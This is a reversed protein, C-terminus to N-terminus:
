LTLQIQMFGEDDLGLDIPRYEALEDIYNRANPGTKLIATRSGMPAFSFPKVTEALLTPQLNGALYDRLADQIRLSPLSILRPNKAVPFDGGGNARYNNLVVVFIQDETIPTGNFSADLIRSNAADVLSGDCHFRAHKSLDIQWTAGYLIDFNHGTWHPNTLLHPGDKSLQSFLGASMELWDLIQTGNALVARLENPFVHIDAVHRMSIEGAPVDTYYRPGARGGFKAPAVASLVPIDAFQTNALFPKVAAAQAEALLSLSRDSGCYSFYSHLPKTIRGVPEASQARTEVHGAAFFASIEADEAVTSADVDSQISRLEAQSNEVRWKKNQDRKLSLDIIGLHSGAWGPMVVPKDHVLGRAHDVHKLGAHGPGPLTLHTHGAIIADIADIEALPIAANEQGNEFTDAGLGTHALAVVLDCGLQKLNAATHHASTVIDEVEAKGKLKHAEWQLTQPPLVSLVGICIPENNGNLVVSRPLIAYPHWPSKLAKYRMNSCLIPYTAKEAIQELFAVGFGFDHNGLGVADYGLAAFAQPLPHAHQITQAAWQGYPTGQLSDGNDFMLVLADNQVAQQRAERILTATRTLGIRTDTCDAYYDYGTVNMHIDSTALIRIMARDDKRQGLPLKPKTIM